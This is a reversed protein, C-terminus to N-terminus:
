KLRRVQNLYSQGIIIHQGGLGSAKRESIHGLYRIAAVSTAAM